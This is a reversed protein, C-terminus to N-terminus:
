RYLRYDKGTVKGIAMDLIEDTISTANMEELSLHLVKMCRQLVRQSFNKYDELTSESVDLEIEVVMDDDLFHPVQKDRVELLLDVAKKRTEAEEKWMLLLADHNRGMEVQKRITARHSMSLGLHNLRTFDASKAGSHVLIASIRHALACMRQNRFRAPVATVLAITNNAKSPTSETKKGCAGSVCAHWFPCMVKVEQAVLKNSYSILDEPSTAKLVSSDSACYDKFERSIKTQLASLMHPQVQLHKLIINAVVKWKKLAINKILSSTLIDSPTRVTVMSESSILVKVLTKDKEEHDIDLLLPSDAPEAMPKDVQSEFSQKPPLSLSRRITKNSGDKRRIKSVQKAHPSTSMRKWREPSDIEQAEDTKPTLSPKNISATIFLFLSAANRVKTACKSCARASLNEELKLGLDQQIFDALRRKAVGKKEPVKFINETSIYGAKGFNGVSIRFTCKCIRCFDSESIDNTERTKRGRKGVAKKPTDGSM